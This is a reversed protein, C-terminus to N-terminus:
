RCLVNRFFGYCAPILRSPAIQGEVDSETRAPGITPAGPPRVELKGAHVNLRSDAAFLDLFQSLRTTNM